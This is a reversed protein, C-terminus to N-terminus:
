DIKTINEIWSKFNGVITYTGDMGTATMRRQSLVGLQWGDCVLPGGSDGKSPFRYKMRLFNTKPDYGDMVEYDLHAFYLDLNGIEGQENGLRGFGLTICDGKIEKSSSICVPQVFKDFKIVSSTLLLCLDNVAYDMVSGDEFRKMRTGYDPHIAYGVINDMNDERLTVEGASYTIADLIMNYPPVDACHAATLIWRDALITGTCKYSSRNNDDLNITTIKLGTIYPFMGKTARDGGIIR